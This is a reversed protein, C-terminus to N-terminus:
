GPLDVSWLSTGNYADVAEVHDVKIVFLRGDKYLPGMGNAHWGVNRPPSPDGFWQVRYQTGGVLQDGSNSTNAPAAFMHTWEGAGPLPPKVREGMKGGPRVLAFLAEAAFDTTDAIVLNAFNHIYPLRGEPRTHVTVWRGYFGDRVLNERAQQATAPNKEVCVVRMRSDRAVAAARRGDGAGAMVCFGKPTGPVSALVPLNRLEGGFCYIKGTSTSAFLFDGDAALEWATGDVDHAFQQQGTALDFGYVKNEAGVVALQGTLLLARGGPTAAQWQVASKLQEEAVSDTRQQVSSKSVIQRKRVRTLYHDASEQLVQRFAERRYAVLEDHRLFYATDGRALFRWGRLGTLKGRIARLLQTSDQQGEKEVRFRFIGYENPGYVVMDDVYALYASGDERRLDSRERVPSGDTLRFETPSARGNPVFLTDEAILLHGQSPTLIPRKWIEAGDAANLACLYVGGDAPFLGASFYAIGNTVAVSTRVPWQSALRGNAIILRDEPGARYKWHLQGTAADLCYVYGDDSGFFIRDAAVAPAFRVAGETFFSWVRAGTKADLCFVGEHAASVYFLRGHAATIAHAFDFTSTPALLEQPGLTQARLEPYFGPHPPLGTDFVWGAAARLTLGFLLLTGLTARMMM